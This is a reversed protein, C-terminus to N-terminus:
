LPLEPLNFGRAMAKSMEAMTEPPVALEIGGSSAQFEKWFRAIEALRAEGEPNCQELPTFSVGRTKLTELKLRLRDEFDRYDGPGAWATEALAFLRPFIARELAAATPVRETWLCAEVGATNPSAARSRGGIAPEYRFVKQLSSFSAPYDFYLSFMDSFVVGGGRDFYSELGGSADWEVWYQIDMNGPLVRSKLIDNWCRVKKGKGALHEALRATFHGQLDEFDELGLRKLAAKCHECQEWETKPAEDGGLHILPSDFLDAIEDLLTFLFEYVREKGACLIIPFIGGGTVPSVPEERCSLEPYVSLLATTHGPLDIEPIVEIGRDRAFAVIRRIEEQTYRPGGAHLKPFARSEIRWGQDDSLHWHFINLKVLAMEELIREIEASEFFHRSCDLMFGRHGYRPRDSLRCCPIERGALREFLSTLGQIIGREGSATLSIGAREVELTYAEPAYAGDRRLRLAAGGDKFVLPAFGKEALRSAFASLCWPDFGGREVTLEAPVAFAGEQVEATGNIGPISQLLAM